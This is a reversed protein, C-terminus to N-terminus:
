VVDNRRKLKIKEKRKRLAIKLDQNHNGYRTINIMFSFCKNSFLLVHHTLTFFQFTKNFKLIYYIKKNQKEQGDCLNGWFYM